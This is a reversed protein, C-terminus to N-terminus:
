KLRPALKSLQISGECLFYISKHGAIARDPGTYGKLLTDLKEEAVAADPFYVYLHEVEPDMSRAAELDFESFPLHETINEFDSFNLLIIESRFGFKKEFADTLIEKIEAKERDSRFVVNGSQIYTRPAQMGSEAFVDKLEDMKVRHKGGVNIGRMLAAYVM